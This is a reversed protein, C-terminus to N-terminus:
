WEVERTVLPVRELRFEGRDARGGFSLRVRQGHQLVLRVGISGRGVIKRPQDPYITQHHSHPNEGATEFFRHVGTPRPERLLSSASALDFSQGSVYSRDSNSSEGARELRARM